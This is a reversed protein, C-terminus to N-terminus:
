LATEQDQEESESLNCAKCVRRKLLLRLDDQLFIYILPDVVLGMFWVITFGMYVTESGLHFCMFTISPVLLFFIWSLIILAVMKILKRNRKFMLRRRRNANIEQPNNEFKRASSKFYIFGYVFISLTVGICDFVIWMYERFSAMFIKNSFCITIALILALIWAALILRILLKKTLVLRYRLLYKVAIFRDITLLFMAFYYFTWMAANVDVVVSFVVSDLFLYAFNHILGTVSVIIESVTLNILLIKSNTLPKTAVLLYLGLLNLSISSLAVLSSISSLILSTVRM